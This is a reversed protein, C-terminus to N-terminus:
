KLPATEGNQDLATNITVNQFVVLYDSYDANGIVSGVAHYFVFIKPLKCKYTM